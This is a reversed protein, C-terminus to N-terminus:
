LPILVGHQVTRQTSNVKDLKVDVVQQDTEFWKETDVEKVIHLLSYWAWTVKSNRHMNRPAQIRIVKNEFTLIWTITWSDNQQVHQGSEDVHDDGDMHVEVDQICTHDGITLKQNSDIVFLSSEGQDQVFRVFHYQMLGDM